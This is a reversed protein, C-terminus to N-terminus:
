IVSTTLKINVYTKKFGINIIINEVDTLFRHLFDYIVSTFFMNQLLPGM